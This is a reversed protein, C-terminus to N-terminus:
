GTVLHDLDHGLGFLRASALHSDERACPQHRNHALPGLLPLTVLLDGGDGPHGGTLGLRTLAGVIEQEHPLLVEHVSLENRALRLDLGEDM